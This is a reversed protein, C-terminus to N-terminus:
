PGCWSKLALYGVSFSIIALGSAAGLLILANAHGGPQVLVYGVVVPSVITGLNAIANLYGSVHAVMGPRSSIDGPVSWILASTSIVGVFSSVVLPAVDSTIFPVAALLAGAAFGFTMPLLRAAALNFGQTLLVASILGSLVSAVPALISQIFTISAASASTYGYSEVLITPLWTSHFAKCFNYLLFGIASAAFSILPLRFPRKDTVDSEIASHTIPLAPQSKDRLFLAAAAVILALLGVSAYAARWGMNNAAFVTLPGSFAMGVYSTGEVIGIKASTANRGSTMAIWSVFLPFLPAEAIGLAFRAAALESVNRACAFGAAAVVWAVAGVGLVRRHGFRTIIFGSLPLAIVYGWGFASLVYGLAVTDYAFDKRIYPIVHAISTREIYAIGVAAMLIVLPM